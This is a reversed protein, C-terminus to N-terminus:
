DSAHPLLVRLGLVIPNAAMMEEGTLPPTFSQETMVSLTTPATRKRSEM